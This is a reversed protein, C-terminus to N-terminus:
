SSHLSKTNRRNRPKHQLHYCAGLQLLFPKNGYYMGMFFGFCQSVSPISTVLKEFKRHIEIFILNEAFKVINNGNFYVQCQLTRCNNAPPPPKVTQASLRLFPSGLKAELNQWQSCTCDHALWIVESYEEKGRTFVFKYIVCLDNSSIHQFCKSILARQTSTWTCWYSVYQLWSIPVNTYIAPSFCM